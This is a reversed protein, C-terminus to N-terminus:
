EAEVEPRTRRIWSLVDDFCLMKGREEPDELLPIVFNDYFTIFMRATHGSLMQEVYDMFCETDSVAALAEVLTIITEENLKHENDICLKMVREFIGYKSVNTLVVDDQGIDLMDAYRFINYLVYTNITLLKTVQESKVTINLIENVIYVLANKDLLKFSEVVDTYCKLLVLYDCVDQYNPNKMLLLCLQKQVLTMKNQAIAHKIVLDQSSEMVSVVEHVNEQERMGYDALKRVIVMNQAFKPSSPEEFTLQQYLKVIMEENMQQVDAVAYSYAKMSRGGRSAKEPM